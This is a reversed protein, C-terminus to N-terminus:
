GRRLNQHQTKWHPQQQQQQQSQLQIMSSSTPAQPTSIPGIRVLSRTSRIIVSAYAISMVISIVCLYVILVSYFIHRPVGYLPSFAMVIANIWLALIVIVVRRKTVFRTYYQLKKMRIYRDLSIVPLCLGSVGCFIGLAFYTSYALGCSRVTSRNVLLHVCMLPQSILGVLFDSVALSVVFLNTPTILREKSFIGKIFCFNIMVSTIATVANTVVLLYILSPAM